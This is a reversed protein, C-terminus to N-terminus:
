VVIETKLRIILWSSFQGQTSCFSEVFLIFVINCASRWPDTYDDM